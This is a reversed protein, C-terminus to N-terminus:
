RYSILPVFRVALLPKQIFNNKNDTKTILVLNQNVSDEEIPMIMYGGVKLQSLLTLPMQRAAATIIIADFPAQQPWGEKGDGSRVHVNKYGLNELLTKAHAALEVVIEVSYVEKCIEGLIAAQYGSGTGIELVKSTKNVNITSTMFAVIYPQSITQGYGIDLPADSYAYSALGGPVFKHREVIQMADIVNQDTIGRSKIQTEVMQLRQFYFKGQDMTDGNNISIAALVFIILLLSNNNTLRLGVVTM